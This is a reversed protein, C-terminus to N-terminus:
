CLASRLTGQAICDDISNTVWKICLLTYIGVGIVWDMGYWEGRSIVRKFWLKRMQFMPHCYHRFTFLTLDSLRDSEKHGVSQPGSPEEGM